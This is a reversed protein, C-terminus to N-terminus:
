PQTNTLQFRTSVINTLTMIIIYIWTPQIIAPLGSGEVWIDLSINLIRLLTSVLLNLRKMKQIHKNIVFRSQVLKSPLSHRSPKYEEFTVTDIVPIM